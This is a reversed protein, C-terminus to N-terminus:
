GLPDDTFYGALMNAAVQPPMGSARCAYAAAMLSAIAKCGPTANSHELLATLQRRLEHIAQREDTM